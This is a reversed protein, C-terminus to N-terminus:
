LVFIDLSEIVGGGGKGESEAISECVWFWGGSDEEEMESFPARGVVGMM